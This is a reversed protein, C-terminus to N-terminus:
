PAMRKNTCLLIGTTGNKAYAHLPKHSNGTHKSGCYTGEFITVAHALATSLFPRAIFVTMTALWRPEIFYQLDRSM